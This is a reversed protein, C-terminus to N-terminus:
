FLNKKRHSRKAAPKDDKAGEPSGEKIMKKPPDIKLPKTQLRAIGNGLAFINSGHFSARM